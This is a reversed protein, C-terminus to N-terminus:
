RSSTARRRRRIVPADPTAMPTTPPGCRQVVPLGLRLSGDDAHHGGLPVRGRVSSQDNRPDSPAGRDGGGLLLPVARRLDPAPRPVMAGSSGLRSPTGALVTRGHLVEAPGPGRPLAGEFLLLLQERRFLSVVRRCLRSPPDPGELRLEGFL